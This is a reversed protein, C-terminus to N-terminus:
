NYITSQDKLVILIEKDKKERSFYSKILLKTWVSLLKITKKFVIFNIKKQAAYICTLILKNVSIFRAALTIM